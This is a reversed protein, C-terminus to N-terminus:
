FPIDEDLRQLQELSHEAGSLQRDVQNRVVSWAYDFAKDAIHEKVEIEVTAEARENNFHESNLRGYTVRIKM